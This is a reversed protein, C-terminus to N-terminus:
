GQLDARGRGRGKKERGKWNGGGLPVLAKRPGGGEVGGESGLEM